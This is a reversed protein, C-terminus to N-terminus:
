KFYKLHKKLEKIKDEAKVTTEQESEGKLSNIIDRVVVNPDTAKKGTFYQGTYQGTLVALEVNSIKERVVRQNYGDIYCLFQWLDMEFVETM